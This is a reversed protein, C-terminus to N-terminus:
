AVPGSLVYALNTNRGHLSPSLDLASICDVCLVCGLVFSPYTTRAIRTLQTWGCPSCTVLSQPQCCCGLLGLVHGPDLLIQNSGQSVYKFSLCPFVCAYSQHELTRHKPKQAASTRSMEAERYRKGGQSLSVYIYSHRRLLKTNFISPSTRGAKVVAERRGSHSSETSESKIEVAPPRERARRVRGSKRFRCSSRVRM